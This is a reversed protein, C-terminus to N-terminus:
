PRTKVTLENPHVRAMHERFNKTKVKSGCTECVSWEGTPSPRPGSPSTLLQNVLEDITIGRAKAMGKMTVATSERVTLVAWGKEPM